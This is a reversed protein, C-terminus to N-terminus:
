FIELNPWSKATIRIKWFSGPTDHRNMHSKWIMILPVTWHSKRGTKYLEIRGARTLINKIKPSKALKKYNKMFFRGPTLLISSMVMFSKCLLTSHLKNKKIPCFVTILWLDPIIKSTWIFVKLVRMDIKKIKLFELPCKVNFFLCM